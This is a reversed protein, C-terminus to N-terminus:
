PIAIKELAEICYFLGAGIISLLLVAAFIRVTDYTGQSTMIVYGLRGESSAIFEGVIADIFAFSIGVKLGAFIRPM